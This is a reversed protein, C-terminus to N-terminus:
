RKGARRMVRSVRRRRYQCSGCSKVREFALENATAVIRRGCTCRCWFQPVLRNPVLREVTLLHHKMGIWSEYREM